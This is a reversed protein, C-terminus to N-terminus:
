KGALPIVVKVTTGGSASVIDLLGGLEQVRERMSATGVGMSPNGQIGRGDDAVELAIESESQVLRVRATTSGSHRYVNALCEQVIRFLAMQVERPLGGFDASLDLDVQIGSREVFGKVYRTLTTQLGLQDLEPPHLLYSIIRIERLCRDALAISENVARQSRSDLRSAEENVVALNMSLGALLQATSDHLERALRRREQNTAGLTTTRGRVGEAVRETFEALELIEWNGLRRAIAYQHAHALDFLKTADIVALPYSCLVIMRQNAILDDINRDFEVFHQWDSDKVWSPNGNGRLGSYGKALAERLKEKWANLAHAADFVGNKLIFQSHPYIEIDGAALHRDLAPVARGLENRAEDESLPDSVVWICFEHNELGTKFYPVLIDILDKKTEYLHCFHTGWSLDGLIAIGPKRPEGATPNAARPIGEFQNRGERASHHSEPYDMEVAGFPCTEPWIRANRDRGGTVGHARIANVVDKWM